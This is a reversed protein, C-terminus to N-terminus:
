RMLSWLDVHFVRCTSDNSSCIISELGHAGEGSHSPLSVMDIYTVQDRHGTLEALQSGNRADFLRVNNDLCGTCVVPLSSHWRLSVVGASHHCVSRCSGTTIDWIKLTKDMGGSALWRLSGRAMGVCEVSLVSEEKRTGDEDADEDEEAVAEMAGGGALTTEEPKCHVFTQLVRKGALHYLKVTGDM